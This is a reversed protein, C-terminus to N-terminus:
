GASASRRMIQADAIALATEAAAKFLLDCIVRKNQYAIDAIQGPLTFVLGARALDTTGASRDSTHPHRCM